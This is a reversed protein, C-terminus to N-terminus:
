EIIAAISPRLEVESRLWAEGDESFAIIYRSDGLTRDFAETAAAMIAKRAENLEIDGIHSTSVITYSMTHDAKSLTKM